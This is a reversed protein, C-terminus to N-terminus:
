KERPPDGFFLRLISPLLSAVRSTAFFSPRRLARAISTLRLASIFVLRRVFSYTLFHTSGRGAARPLSPRGPGPGPSTIGSGSGVGPWGRRTSGSLGRAGPTGSGSVGGGRYGGTERTGPKGRAHSLTYVGWEWCVTRARTHFRPPVMKDM